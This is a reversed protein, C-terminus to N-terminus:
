EEVTDVDVGDPVNAIHEALRVRHGALRREAEDLGQRAYEVNREARAVDRRLNETQLQYTKAAYRQQLEQIIPGANKMRVNVSETIRALIDERRKGTVGKFAISEAQIVWEDNVQTMMVSFPYLLGRVKLGLGHPTYVQLARETKLVIYIDGLDTFSVKIPEVQNFVSLAQTM